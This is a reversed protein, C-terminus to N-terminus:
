DVLNDGVMDVGALQALVAFSHAHAVQAAGASRLLASNQVHACSPGTSQRSMPLQSHM